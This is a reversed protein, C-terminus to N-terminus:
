AASLRKLVSPVDAETSAGDKQLHRLVEVAAGGTHDRSPFGVPDLVIVKPPLGGALLDQLNGLNGPGVMFPAVVIVDATGLLGRNEQRSAETLSTFPAEHAVAVDLERCVEEDTDLLPLVGASVSHGQSVLGRLLAIGSGGGAVVHVRKRGHVPLPAPPPVARPPFVFVRGGRQHVEAEVGFVQFVRSATVTEAPPGLAQAQGRALWLIRDAYRCALNLDHLAVLVARGTGQHRFKDLHDLLELQRAMDLHSTPEDLVMIPAQQALARAFMVRQREGGSIDLVGRRRFPLLDSERLAEEVATRDTQDELGFAGVHPFRALGVYEEVSLNESLAEDQPVWAARRARARPDLAQVPSGRILVRGGGLPQLGLISRLLTTKGSGNPGVLALIEGPKVSLSIDALVTRGDLSVSIGEVEVPAPESM